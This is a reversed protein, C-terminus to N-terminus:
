HVATSPTAAPEATATPAAAAAAAAATAARHAALRRGLADFNRMAHLHLYLLDLGDNRALESLVEAPLAKLRDRNVAQFGSLSLRDGGEVTVQAQMPELLGLQEVRACFAQTRNFQEQYEQLFTLVQDTYGTPKGEADFLAQGRSARNFGQYEEDVCLTFREGDRSFVFPYRRLFAPVYNGAWGGDATLFLNENSGIGLIVAPVLDGPQGAFVIPYESAAQAFEVAMLPVSNVAAAFSYGGQPEIACDHHRARSVPVATRYILLQM